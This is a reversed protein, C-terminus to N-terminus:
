VLQYNSRPAVQSIFYKLPGAEETPQGSAPDEGTTDVLVKRVSVELIDGTADLMVEDNFQVEVATAVTSSPPIYVPKPSQNAAMIIAHGNDVIVCGETIELNSSDGKLFGEIPVDVGSVGRLKLTFELNGLPGLETKMRSHDVSSPILSTEAGTDLVCGLKIGAIAIEATPSSSIVDSVIPESVVDEGDTPLSASVQSLPTRQKPTGASKVMQRLEDVESAVKRLVVVEERLATLEKLVSEAVNGEALSSVQAERVRAQGKHYVMSGTAKHFFQSFANIDVQDTQLQVTAVALSEGTWGGARLMVDFSTM